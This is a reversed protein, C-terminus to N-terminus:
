TDLGSLIYFTNRPEAPSLTNKDPQRPDLLFPSRGLNSQCEVQIKQALTLFGTPAKELTVPNNRIANVSPNITASMLKSAVLFSLKDELPIPTPNTSITKACKELLPRYLPLSGEPLSRTYFDSDRIIIYTALHVLLVPDGSFHLCKQALLALVNKKRPFHLETKALYDIDSTSLRSLPVSAELLSDSHAYFAEKSKKADLDKQFDDSSKPPELDALRSDFESTKFWNKLSTAFHFQAESSLKEFNKTYYERVTM